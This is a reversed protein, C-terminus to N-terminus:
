DSVTVGVPTDSSDYPMAGEVTVRHSVLPLPYEAEDAIVIARELTRRAAAVGAVDRAMITAMPEGERVLDGPRVAIVFGVSHDIPDGPKSRGGGLDIVGFGISRPDVSAVFGARSAVFLECCEAQPLQSPDDVVAPDGGQAEVIARFKEAARGSSIAVEM